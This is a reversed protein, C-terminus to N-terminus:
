INETTRQQPNLSEGKGLVPKAVHEKIVNKDTSRNRLKSKWSSVAMNVERTTFVTKKPRVSLAHKLPLLVYYLMKGEVIWHLM